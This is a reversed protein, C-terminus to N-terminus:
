RRRQEPHSAPFSSPFLNHANTIRCPSVTSRASPRRVVPSCRPIFSVYLCPFIQFPHSLYPFFITHTHFTDINFSRHTLLFSSPGLHIKQIVCHLSFGEECIHQHSLPTQIFLSPDSTYSQHPSLLVVSQLDGVCAPM